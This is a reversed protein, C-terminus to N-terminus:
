LKPKTTIGKILHNVIQLTGYKDSLLEILKEAEDKSRQTDGIKEM